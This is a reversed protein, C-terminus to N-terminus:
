EVPHHSHPIRLTTGDEAHDLEHVKWWDLEGAVSNVPVHPPLPIHHTTMHDMLQKM